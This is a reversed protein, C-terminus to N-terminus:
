VSLISSLTGNSTTNATTNDSRYIQAANFQFCRGFNPDFVETFNNRCDENHFKCSIMANKFEYGFIQAFYALDAHPGYLSDLLAPTVGFQTFNISGRNDGYILNMIKITESDVKTNQFLNANCITIAPFTASDKFRITSTIKTPYTYAHTLIRTSQIICAGTAVLTLLIWFYRRISGTKPRYFQSFGHFSTIEAFEKELNRKRLNQTDERIM